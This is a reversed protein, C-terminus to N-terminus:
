NTKYVTYITVLISGITVILMYINMRLSRRNISLFQKNLEQTQFNFFSSAALSQYTQQRLALIGEETIKFMLLNKNGTEISDILGLRIMRLIINQFFTVPVKYIFEQPVRNFVSENLERFNIENKDIFAELVASMAFHEQYFISSLFEPTNESYININYGDIQTRFNKVANVLKQFDIYDEESINEPTRTSDSFTSM